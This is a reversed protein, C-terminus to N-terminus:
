CNVTKLHIIKNGKPDLLSIKNQNNKKHKNYKEILQNKVTIPVKLCHNRLHRNKNKLTYSIECYKCVGTKQCKAIHPLNLNISTLQPLNKKAEKCPFKRQNHKKLKDKRRFSVLCRSCQFDSM